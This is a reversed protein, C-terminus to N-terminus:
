LRARGEKSAMERLDKRLIKGSPSKPITDVFIVGGRLWKYSALNDQVFEEIEKSSVVKQDAVIYARPVETGEGEVGIVAADLIKPHSVLL